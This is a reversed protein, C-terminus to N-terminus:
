TRLRSCSRDGWRVKLLVCSHHGICAGIDCVLGGTRSINSYSELWGRHIDLRKSLEVVPALHTDGEVVALDFETVKMRQDSVPVTTQGDRYLSDWGKNWLLALRDFYSQYQPAVAEISYKSIARKRIKMADLKTSDHIAKVFEGLYHCRYGSVGQEITETFGGCDTAIVPTGCFQAEVAAQNFPEVYITPTLVCQARSM